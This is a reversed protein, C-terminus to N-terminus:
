VTEIEAIARRGPAEGMRPWAVGYQDQGARVGPQCLSVGRKGNLDMTLNAMNRKDSARTPRYRDPTATSAYPM